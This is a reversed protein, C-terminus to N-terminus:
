TMLHSQVVRKEEAAENKVLFMMSANMESHVVEQTREKLVRLALLGREMIHEALCMHRMHLVRISAKCARVINKEKVYSYM